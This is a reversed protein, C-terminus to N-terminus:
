ETSSPHIYLTISATVQSTVEGVNTSTMPYSGNSILKNLSFDYRYLIKGRTWYLHFRYQPDDM